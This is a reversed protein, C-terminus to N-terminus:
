QKLIRQYVAYFLTSKIRASTVGMVRCAIAMTITEYIWIFSVLGALTYIQRKATSDLPISSFTFSLAYAYFLYSISALFYCICTKIVDNSHTRVLSM